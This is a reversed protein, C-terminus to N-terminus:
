GTLECVKNKHCRFARCRYYGCNRTLSNHDALALVFYSYSIKGTILSSAVHVSWGEQVGVLRKLFGKVHDYVALEGASVMAGRLTSAVLGKYLGHRIGEQRRIEVLASLVSTYRTPKIMTRVKVVDIPNALLSGCTGTCLAALIKCLASPSSSDEDLIKHLEDRFSSYFGARIGSYVMERMM